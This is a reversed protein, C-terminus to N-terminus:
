FMGCGGFGGMNMADFLMQDSFMQIEQMNQDMFQQFQEQFQQQDVEQQHRQCEETFAQISRDYMEELSLDNQSVDGFAEGTKRTKAMQASGSAQVVLTLVKIIVALVVMVAFLGDM